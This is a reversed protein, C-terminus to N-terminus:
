WTSKKVPAALCCDDDSDFKASGLIVEQTSGALIWHLAHHESNDDDCDDDHDHIVENLILTAVGPITVVQNPMGTVVVPRGGFTLGVFVSPDDDVDEPHCCTDEDASELHVWTVESPAGKMIYGGDLSSGSHGKCRDGHSESQMHDVHLTNGYSVGNKYSSRSGGMVPDLWGTDCNTLHNIGYS